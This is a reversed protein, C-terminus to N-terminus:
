AVTDVENEILTIKKQLGIKGSALFNGNGYAAASGMRAKM